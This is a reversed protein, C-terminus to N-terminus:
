FGEEKFRKMLEKVDEETLCLMGGPMSPFISYVYYKRPISSSIELRIPM